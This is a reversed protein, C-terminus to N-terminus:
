KGPPVNVTALKAAKEAIIKFEDMKRARVMETKAIAGSAAAAFPLGVRGM